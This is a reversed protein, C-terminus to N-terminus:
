PILVIKGRSHRRALDTYADRVRELPYTGAIPVTIQGAAVLGAMEALVEATAAAGSGEAKAGVEAALAFAVVTDIRAPAVGLELALHVYDASFTDIFADVGSPALAAIREALGDGYAVPTVGVSALWDHNAPSAIGIVDAGKVRLLQVAV